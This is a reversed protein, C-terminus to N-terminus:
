HLGLTDEGMDIQNYPNATIIQRVFTLAPRNHIFAFSIFGNTVTPVDIFNDAVGGPCKIIFEEGLVLCKM